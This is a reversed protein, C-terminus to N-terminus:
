RNGGLRARGDDLVAVVAPHVVSGSHTVTVAAQIEDRLDITPTGDSLLYTLLAGTNRAYATSAATAM